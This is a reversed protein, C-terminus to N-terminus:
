HRGNNDIIGTKAYCNTVTSNSLETTWQRAIEILIDIAGGSIIDGAEDYNYRTASFFL